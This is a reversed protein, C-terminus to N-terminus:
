SGDGVTVVRNEGVLRPNVRAIPHVRFNQVGADVAFSNEFSCIPLCVRDELLRTIAAEYLQRRQDRDDTRRASELRDMVADERYFTGNTVGTMNEHFTPYLHTDPDPTGSIEGVFVAYDRESGSVYRDVFETEPKSIVLAGHDADRLGGALAEGFEKHKPDMSTLIRLQGSAEDAERFLNKAREVNKENALDTWEDVPLDWDDAVQPPLPSYQRQGMPEVFESVATELDICYSIAKRVRHDTTPGENLNFGYYFSTYGERRKVSANAVDSVHDVILPSVPGIVDNRNTRLSTLQTIPFEVSALTLREIEPETEGWYDDWRHLTAKKEASFSAAEFPGAGIPDTAFAERDDEREQKPVIPHTLAHDLGPYLEELTFRVTREDEAAISEFPSVRWATPADEELPTEFSYVIDEARVGRGNQFRASDDLEVIVERGDDETTPEGDAIAPVIDTGEGYAYLGEFVREIAQESGISDATIPDLTIPPRLTGIRLTSAPDTGITTSCGALLAASTGGIGALLDRRTPRGRDDGTNEANMGRRPDTETLIGDRGLNRRRM